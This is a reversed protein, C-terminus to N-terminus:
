LEAECALFCVLKDNEPQRSHLFILVIEDSKLVLGVSVTGYEVYRWLRVINQPHKHSPFAKVLRHINFGLLKVTKLAGTESDNFPAATLNFLIRFPDLYIETGGKYKM